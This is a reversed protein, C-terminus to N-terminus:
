RRGLEFFPLELGFVLVDQGATNSRLRLKVLEGPGLRPLREHGKTMDHSIASGASADLKGVTPTITLTGSGQIKSAIEPQLWVKPITPTNGSMPNTTADFDIATASGDTKTDQQQYLKGDSGLMLSIEVDNADRVALGGTPTFEGTKHPGWWTKSALDFMVWRDLNNSGSASLMLVYAHYEPSYFGVAQDFRSTNFYSNNRKKFWDAVQADSINTIGDPGWTYVGFPNGLFYGVDDITVCSDAAWIGIRNTETKRIFNTESTGQIKHFSGAKGVGLEDKRKLFGTIGRADFNTPPISITRGIPFAYAKRNAGQYLTDPADFSKGWLRDKWEVVMEFRPPTGLDTPAAVLSLGADSLDDQIQVITNGPVMIWPFYTSGPGTTTRYVGRESITQIATPINSAVLLQSALTPSATSVPGFDSEAILNGFDDLIRNTTKVRFSGSLGGSGTATLTVAGSPPRPCLVRVNDFRDVTIPESPSNVLVTLNGMTAGRLRKTSDLTVGTPLTLLTAAGATSVRYLSSGSQVIYYGAM